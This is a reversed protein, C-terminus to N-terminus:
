DLSVTFFQLFTPFSRSICCILWKLFTGVKPEPRGEWTRESQYMLVTLFSHFSCRFIQQHRQRTQLNWPAAWFTWGFARMQQRGLHTRTRIWLVINNVKSLKVPGVIPLRHFVFDFHLSVALGFNKSGPTFFYAWGSFTTTAAMHHHYDPFQIFYGSVLFILGVINTATSGFRSFPSCWSLPSYLMLWDQRPFKKFGAIGWVDLSSLM